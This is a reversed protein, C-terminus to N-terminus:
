AEIVIGERRAIDLIPRSSDNQWERVGAPIPEIRNDSVGTSLWLQEVLERDCPPDFQPAIVLLDIDSWQHAEGRAFSGFLVASSPHIGVAPLAALYKKVAKIITAEVM